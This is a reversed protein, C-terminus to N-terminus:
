PVSLLRGWTTGARSALILCRAIVFLYLALLIIVGLMGLEEALVIIFDTHSEAFLGISGSQRSALRKRFHRGFRDGDQNFSTGFEM